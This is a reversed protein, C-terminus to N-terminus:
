SFSLFSCGPYLTNKYFGFNQSVNLIAQALDQADGAKFFVANKSNLIEEISPLRSAIILRQSAMYEFMKIPSTYEISEKNIPINPLLLIDASKLYYPVENKPKRGLILINDLQM